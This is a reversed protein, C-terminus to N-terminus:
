RGQIAEWLNPSLHSLSKEQAVIKFCIALHKANM